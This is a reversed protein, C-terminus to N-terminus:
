QRSSTEGQKWDEHTWPIVTAVIDVQVIFAHFFLIEIQPNKIGKSPLLTDQAKKILESVHWSNNVTNRCFCHRNYLLHSRKVWYNFLENVIQVHITM